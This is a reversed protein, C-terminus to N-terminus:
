LSELSKQEGINAKLAFGAHVGGSPSHKQYPPTLMFYITIIDNKFLHPILVRITKIRDDYPFRNLHEHRRVNEM